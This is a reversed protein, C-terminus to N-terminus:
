ATPAAGDLANHLVRSMRQAAARDTEYTTPPLRQDWLIGDRLTRVRVADRPYTTPADLEM